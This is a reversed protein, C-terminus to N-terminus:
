PLLALFLDASVVRVRDSVRLSVGTKHVVQVYPAGLREALRASPGAVQLESLKAEVALAPKGDLTVLFDVEVGDFNRVYWLEARGLGQDSWVLCARYLAVAVLNEFVRAEGAAFTWNVFYWKEEHRVARGLRRSYPRLSFLLWLKRLHLLHNKATPFSTEADRALGAISLPSGIREPLLSALKEALDV